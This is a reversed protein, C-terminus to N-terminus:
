PSHEAAPSGPTPPSGDHQALSSGLLSGVAAEAAEYGAGQPNLRVNRRAKQVNKWYQTMAGPPMPQVNLIARMEEDIRAKRDAIQEEIQRQAEEIKAQIDKHETSIGDGDYVQIPKM